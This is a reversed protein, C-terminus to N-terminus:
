FIAEGRRQSEAHSLDKRKCLIRHVKCVLIHMEVVMEEELSRIKKDEERRCAEQKKEQLSESM